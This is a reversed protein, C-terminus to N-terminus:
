LDYKEFLVQLKNYNVVYFTGTRKKQHEIFKKIQKGFKHGTTKNDINNGGCWIKFKDFLQTAKYLSEVEKEEEFLENQEDLYKLFRVLLPTNVSQLEKYYETIPRDDEVNFGKLNMGMLQKYFAMQVNKNSLADGLPNLYDRDQAYKNECDFVAFRRDGHEIKIPNEDNSFFIYSGCHNVTYGNVYKPEVFIDESPILTKIDANAAFTDKGSTEDIIVMLKNEISTNNKGVIQDLKNPKSFYKKGLINKGFWEFFMNKGVGKELSRFLLATGQVKGLVQVRRALWKRVYPSYKDSGCLVDIHKHILILGEHVEKKEEDTLKELDIDLKEIDLGDFSNYVYDTNFKLPPPLFDIKKYTKREVDKYWLDTFKYKVVSPKVIKGKKDLGGELYDDYYLNEYNEDFNKKNNIAVEGFILSVYAAPKQIKFNFKEFYEKLVYYNSKKIADPVNNKRMKEWKKINFEEEDVPGIFRFVGKLERFIKYENLLHIFSGINVKIDTGYYRNILDVYKEENYYNESSIMKLQKLITATTKDIDLGLKHYYKILFMMLTLRTEYTDFYKKEMSSIKDFIFDFAPIDLEFLDGNNEVKKEETVVEPKNTQIIKVLEDCVDKSFDIEPVNDIVQVVYKHFNEESIETIPKALSNIDGDKMTMPLRFKTLQHRYISTDLDLGVYPILYDKVFDKLTLINTRYPFVFHYSIKRCNTSETEGTEENKINHITYRNDEVSVFDETKFVKTLSSVLQDYRQTEITEFDQKEEENIPIYEDFDIHIKVQQTTTDFYEYCPKVTKKPNNFRSSLAKYLKSIEAKCTDEKRTNLKVAYQVVQCM